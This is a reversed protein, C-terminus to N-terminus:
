WPPPRRGPIGRGHAPARPRGHRGRAHRMGHGDRFFTSPAQANLRPQDLMHSWPRCCRSSSSPGTCRWAPWWAPWRRHGRATAARLREHPLSRPRARALVEITLAGAAPLAAKAAEADCRDRRRSRHGPRVPRAHHGRHGQLALVPHGFFPLKNLLFLMGLGATFTAFLVTVEFMIPVFAQWSFLAKGGTVIPYDVASIWCQFGLATLPAWRHGHGAGHRGPAFPPPRPRRRHRPRSLAHLGRPAGLKRERPGQPIAACRARRRQRLPGLVAFPKSLVMTAEMHTPQAGPCSRGEGRHHRHGAARARLAAGPHLLPRLLRAPHRLRGHDAQLHALVSPLYDQHLSIVIIVFREFWMGVTVALAVFIMWFYSTRCKKSGSCSRSSSTAASPSGARGATPAPSTHEHLHPPHVREPQVLGHLGGHHLTYGMLCSM